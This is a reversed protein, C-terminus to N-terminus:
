SASWDLLGSFLMKPISVSSDGNIEPLPTVCLLEGAISYRDGSDDLGTASTIDVLCNNLDPTSFFRGNGEEILTVNVSFEGNQVDRELDPIAMIIALQLDGDATKGAFRLRAGRGEPRPMGACELDNKNWDVEIAIAGYLEASLRGENGCLLVPEEESPIAANPEPEAAPECAALLALVALFLGGPSVFPRSPACKKQIIQLPEPRNM